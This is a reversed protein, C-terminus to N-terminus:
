CDKIAEKAGEYFGYIFAGLRFLVEGCRPSSPDYGLREAVKAALLKVAICDGRKMDVMLRNAARAICEAHEEDYETLCTSNIGSKKVWDEFIGSRMYNTFAVSARGARGDQQHGDKSVVTSQALIRNYEYGIVWIEFRGTERLYRHTFVTQQIPADGQQFKLMWALGFLEVRVATMEEEFKAQGIKEFSPDAEVLSKYYPELIIQGVNEHGLSQSVPNPSFLYDDYYHRCFEEVSVKPKRDFLGM